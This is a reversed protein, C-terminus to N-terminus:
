YFSLAKLRGNHCLRENISFVKHASKLKKKAEEWNNIININEM